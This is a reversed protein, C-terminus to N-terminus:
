AAGLGLAQYNMTLRGRTGRDYPTSDICRRGMPVCGCRPVIRSHIAHIDAQPRAYRLAWRASSCMQKSAHCAVYVALLPRSAITGRAQGLDICWRTGVRRALMSGGCKVM